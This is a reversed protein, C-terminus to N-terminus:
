SEPDNKKARRREARTPRMAIDEINVNKQSRPKLCIRYSSYQLHGSSQSQRSLFTNTLTVLTAASTRYKKVIYQYKMFIKRGIKSWFGDYPGVSPSASIVCNASRHGGELLALEKKWDGISDQTICISDIWLYRVFM